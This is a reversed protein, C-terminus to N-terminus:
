QLGSRSLAIAAASSCCIDGFGGGGAVGPRGDVARHDVRRGVDRVAVIEPLVENAAPRAVDDDM